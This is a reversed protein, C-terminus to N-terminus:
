REETCASLTVLTDAHGEWFSGDSMQAIAWVRQSEALRVRATLAARGNFPTFYATMILPLPNGEALIHLAKVHDEQSMPSQVTVQMVVSNGNEVLPPLDLTVRGSQLRRGQLLEDLVQRAHDPTAHVPLAPLLSAGGLWRMLQRRGPTM